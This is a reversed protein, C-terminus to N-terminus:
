NNRKLPNLSINSYSKPKIIQDNDDDQNFSGISRLKAKNKDVNKMLKKRKIKIKKKRKITSSEESFISNTNKSFKTKTSRHSQLIIKKIEDEKEIYEVSINFINIIKKCEGGFSDANCSKRRRKLRL